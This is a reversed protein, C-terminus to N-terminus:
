RRVREFHHPDPTSWRGGWSWGRDEFANIFIEGEPTFLPGDGELTGYPHLHWDIDVAIGYAHMSPDRKPDWMKTRAVWAWVKTPYYGSAGSAEAMIKTFEDAVYKHIYTYQTQDNFWCKVIHDKVWKKDQIIAGPKKPDARYGFEGYVRGVNRPSPIPVIDPPPKRRTRRPAKKPESHLGLREEIADITKPGALGDAKLGAEAQVQLAGLRVLEGLPAGELVGAAIQRANWEREFDDGKSM